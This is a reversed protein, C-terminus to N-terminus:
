KKKDNNPQVINLINYAVSDRAYIISMCMMISEGGRHIM